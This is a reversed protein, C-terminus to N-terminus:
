ELYQPGPHAHADIFGPVVTKDPLDLVTTKPGVFKELEAGGGIMVFKGDTVAFGKARPRNTDVTIVNAGRVVLDAPAAGTSVTGLCAAALLFMLRWANNM